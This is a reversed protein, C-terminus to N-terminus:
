DYGVWGVQDCSEGSGVVQTSPGHIKMEEFVRNFRNLYHIVGLGSGVSGHGGRSKMEM